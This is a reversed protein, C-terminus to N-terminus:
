RDGKAPVDLPRGLRRSRNDGAYRTLLSAQAQCPGPPDDPPGVRHYDGTADLEWADVTDRLYIDLCEDIIRAKLAPDDIPACLEVRRYLNRSAWDASSL